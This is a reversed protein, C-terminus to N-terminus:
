KSDAKSQIFLKKDFSVTLLLVLLMEIEYARTGLASYVCNELTGRFAMVSQKCENLLDVNNVLAFLKHCAMLFYLCHYRFMNITPSSCIANSSTNAFIYIKEAPCLFANVDSDENM